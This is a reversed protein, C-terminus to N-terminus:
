TTKNGGTEENNNKNHNMEKFLQQAVEQIQEFRYVPIEGEMWPLNECIDTVYARVTDKPCVPERSVGSRVLEIKPYGSYKFGELLILDADPFLEMLAEPNARPWERVAMFKSGSDVACGYAGAQRYKWSDTGPVDAEFEHGDHKIVATKIGKEGLYGLLQEIYTTKGSNKVGSVALIRSMCM